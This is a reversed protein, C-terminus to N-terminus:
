GEETGQEVLESGEDHSEIETEIEETSDFVFELSKLTDLDTQEFKKKLEVM